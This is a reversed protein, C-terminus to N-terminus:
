LIPVITESTDPLSFRLVLYIPIAALMLDNIGWTISFAVSLVPALVSFIGNIGWAWHVFSTATPKMQEIASPVFIGLCAGIPLVLSFVIAARLWFSLGM